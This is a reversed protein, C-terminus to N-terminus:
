PFIEHPPVLFALLSFCRFAAFAAFAACTKQLWRSFGPLAAIARWFPGHSLSPELFRGVAEEPPLVWFFPASGPCIPWPLYDKVGTPLICTRLILRKWISGGKSRKKAFRFWKASGLTFSGSKKEVSTGRLRKCLSVWPYFWGVPEM